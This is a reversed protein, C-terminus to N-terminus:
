EAQRRLRTSTRAAAAAAEAAGEEAAVQTVGTVRGDRMTVSRRDVRLCELAARGGGVEQVSAPTKCLELATAAATGPMVATGLVFTSSNGNDVARDKGALSIALGM